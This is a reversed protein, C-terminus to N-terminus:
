EQEEQIWSLDEPPEPDPEHQGVKDWQKSSGAAPPSKEAEKPANQTQEPSEGVTQEGSNKLWEDFYDAYETVTEKEVGTGQFVTAANNLAVSRYISEQRENSEQGNYLGAPANSAVTHSSVGDEQKDTKFRWMRGSTEQLHGWYKKGIEPPTKTTWLYTEADGEFVVSYTKGYKALDQPSNKDNIFQNEDVIVPTFWGIKNLEM